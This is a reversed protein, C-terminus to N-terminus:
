TTSHSLSRSIPKWTHCQEHGQRREREECPAEPEQPQV